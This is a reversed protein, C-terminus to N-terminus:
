RLLKGPTFGFTQKHAATLASSSSFGVEYAAQTITYGKAILKHTLLLRLQRRWDQFALGTENKFIRGLTKASCSALKAWQEITERNTPNEKLINAVKLARKDEPFTIMFPESKLSCMEAILVEKLLKQYKPDINEGEALKVLVEKFLGTVAFIQIDDFCSDSLPPLLFATRMKTDALFKIRHDISPPVWVMRTEPVFMLKDGVSVQMLGTRAFIIQGENHSHCPLVDNKKYDLEKFKIAAM